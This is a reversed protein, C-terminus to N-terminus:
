KGLSLLVRPDCAFQVVFSPALVVAACSATLCFMILVVLCVEADFVWVGFFIVLHGARGQRRAYRPAWLTRTSTSSSRTPTATCAAVVRAITLAGHRRVALAYISRSELWVLVPLPPPRPTPLLLLLLVLQLLYCCCCCLLLLLLLRVCTELAYDSWQLVNQSILLNTPFVSWM